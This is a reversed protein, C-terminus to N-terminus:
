VDARDQLREALREELWAGIDGMEQEVIQHGMPYEHYTLHAGASELTARVTRGLALPLVPDATGHAVFFPRGSAAEARAGPPWHGSLALTGAVGQAQDCALALAMAAGQSFGLVFLSGPDVPYAEPLGQVFRRLRDISQLVSVPEPTGAGLMQYWAYGFSGPAPQPARAAVVFLRAPLLPALALLDEEDAGRGHLLLLCPHPAVGERAPATRHVLPLEAV